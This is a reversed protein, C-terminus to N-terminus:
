STSTSTLARPASLGITMITPFVEAAELLRLKLPNSNIIGGDYNPDPYQRPPHRYCNALKNRSLNAARLISQYVQKPILIYRFQRNSRVLQQRGLDAEVM